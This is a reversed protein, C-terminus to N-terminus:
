DSSTVTMVTAVAMVHLRPPVPSPRVAMVVVLQPVPMEMHLVTVVPLLLDQKNYYVIAFLTLDVIVSVKVHTNINLFVGVRNYFFSTIILERNYCVNKWQKTGFDINIVYVM